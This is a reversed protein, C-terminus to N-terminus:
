TYAVSQKLQNDPRKALRLPRNNCVYRPRDTQQISGHARSFSSSCDLHRKLHPGTPSLFRTHSPPGSEPHGYFPANQPSVSPCAWVQWHDVYEFAIRWRCCTAIRHPKESGNGNVLRPSRQLSGWRQTTLTLVLNRRAVRTYVNSRKVARM